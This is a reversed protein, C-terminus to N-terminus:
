TGILMRLTICESLWIRLIWADSDKWVGNVMHNIVLWPLLPPAVQVPAIEVLMLVVDSVHRIMLFSVFLIVYWCIIWRCLSRFSWHQVFSKLLGKAGSGAVCVGGSVGGYYPSSQHGCFLPFLVFSKTWGAYSGYHYQVQSHIFLHDWIDQFHLCNDGLVQIIQGWGSVQWVRGM